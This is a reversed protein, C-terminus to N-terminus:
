DKDKWWNARDDYPNEGDNGKGEILRKLEKGSNKASERLGRMKESNPLKLLSDRIKLAEEIDSCNMILVGFKLKVGDSGKDLIQVESPKIIEKRKM